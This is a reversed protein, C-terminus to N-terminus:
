GLMKRAESIIDETQPLIYNELVPAFPIPAEKATIRRIPSELRIGEIAVIAAVESSVSCRAWAEQVILLRKTKAVSKLILEKDIPSTSRLDLVEIDIGEKALKEAADLSKSVMFSYSVITLDKGERKIDAKGIPIAYQESPVVSKTYYLKRHEFFIVPNDDRIASVLLGKADYANSPCVVKLGPIFSFWSEFNHSHQAAANDYGGCPGRLVIPISAKGAMMYPINAAQNVLQDSAITIWDTFQLEIISRKGLMAAGVGCGTYGAESIPMDFIRKPYKSCLGETVKFAGGYPGIDIGILIVSSDTTMESDIAERLAQCFTIEREM